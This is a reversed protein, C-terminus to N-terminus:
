VKLIPKEDTTVKKRTSNQSKFHQFGKGLSLINLERLISVGPRRVNQWIEDEREKSKQV